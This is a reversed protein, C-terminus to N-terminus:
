RLHGTAPATPGLRREPELRQSCRVQAPAAQSDAQRSWLAVLDAPEREEAASSAQFRTMWDSRASDDLRPGEDSRVSEVPLPAM